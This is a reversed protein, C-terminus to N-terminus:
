HTLGLLVRRVLSRSAGVVTNEQQLLAPIKGTLAYTRFDRPKLVSM